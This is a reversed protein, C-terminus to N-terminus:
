KHTKATCCGNIEVETESEEVGVEDTDYEVECYDHCCRSKLHQANCCYKWMSDCQLAKIIGIAVQGMKLDLSYKM